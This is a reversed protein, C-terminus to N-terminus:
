DKDNVVFTIEEENPQSGMVKPSRFMNTNIGGTQLM